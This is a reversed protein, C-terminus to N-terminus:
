GPPPPSTAGDAVTFGDSASNLASPSAIIAKGSNNVMFIEDLKTGDTKGLAVWVPAKGPAATSYYDPLQTVNTTAALTALDSVSTCGDKICPREHIAEVDQEPATYSVNRTFSKGTTLDTVTMSWKNAATEQVLGEMKDGAHIVLPTDVSAAPIIETWADYRAKGGINDSETGDQILSTDNAGDIGVWDYSFQDGPGTKVTPVTWTGRVATFVKKASGVQAYGSWNASFARTAGRTAAQAHAGPPAAARIEIGGGGSGIGPGAMAGAPALAAVAGAALLAPVFGFRM